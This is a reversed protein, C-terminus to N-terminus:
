SQDNTVVVSLICCCLIDSGLLVKSEGHLCFCFCGLFVTSVVSVLSDVVSLIGSPNPPPPPGAM